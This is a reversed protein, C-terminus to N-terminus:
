EGKEMRDKAIFRIIEDEDNIYKPMEELPKTLCSFCKNLQKIPVATSEYRTDSNKILGEWFFEDDRVIISECETGEEYEVMPEDGNSNFYTPEYNLQAVYSLDHKKVVKSMKVIWQRLKEDITVKLHTPESIYDDLVRVPLTLTITDLM